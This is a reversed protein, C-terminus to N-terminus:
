DVEPLGAALEDIRAQMDRNLLACVKQRSLERFQEEVQRFFDDDSDDPHM